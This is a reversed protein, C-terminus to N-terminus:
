IRFRNGHMVVRQRNKEVLNSCKKVKQGVKSWFERGLNGRTNGSGICLWVLWERSEDREIPRRYRWCGGGM